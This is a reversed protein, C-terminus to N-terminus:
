LTAAMVVGLNAQLQQDEFTNNSVPYGTGQNKPERETFGVQFESAM